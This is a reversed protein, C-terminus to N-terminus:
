YELEIKLPMYSYSQNMYRLKISILRTLDFIEIKKYNSM